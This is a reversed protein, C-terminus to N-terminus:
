IDFHVSGADMKMAPIPNNATLHAEFKRVACQIIMAHLRDPELVPKTLEQKIQNELRIAALDTAGIKIEDSLAPMVEKRPKKVPLTIARAHRVVSAKEYQERSVIAPYGDEGAYRENELMRKVMHKNWVATGKHYQVGREQMKRAIRAYSSGEIYSSFIELVCAAEEPHPIIEGQKIRYGFPLYRNGAM